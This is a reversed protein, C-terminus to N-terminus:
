PEFVFGYVVVAGTYQTITYLVRAGGVDQYDWVRGPREDGLQPNATIAAMALAVAVKQREDFGHVQKIADASLLVEAKRPDSSPSM